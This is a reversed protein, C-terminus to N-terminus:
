RCPRSGEEASLAFIADAAMRLLAALDCVCGTFGVANRNVRGKFIRRTLEPAPNGWRPLLGRSGLGSPVPRPPLGHIGPPYNRAQFLFPSERMLSSSGIKSSLSEGVTLKGTSLRLWLRFRNSQVLFEHRGAEVQRNGYGPFGHKPVTWNVNMVPRYADM